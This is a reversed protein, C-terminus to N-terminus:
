SKRSASFVSQNTSDLWLLPIGIIRFTLSYAVNQIFLDFTPWYVQILVRDPGHRHINIQLFVTYSDQVNQM